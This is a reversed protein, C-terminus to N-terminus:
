KRQSLGLNRQRYAFVGAAAVLSAMGMALVVPHEIGTSGGGGAGVGGVPASSLKGCAAPATVEFPLSNDLTSRAAGDYEGQNDYLKSIGHQVVVASALDEASVGEPLTFTREYTVVGEGNATPFRDAELASDPGTDGETTLSIRIDGFAPQGETSSIFGSDNADASPDPCVGQGGLRIHQAHPLNASAGETNITVTVQDGSVSVMATGTTGSGNLETLNAQYMAGDQAMVVGAGIATVAFAAVAGATIHKIYKKM